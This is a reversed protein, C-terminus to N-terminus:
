AVDRQLFWSSGERIQFPDHSQLLSESEAIVIVM